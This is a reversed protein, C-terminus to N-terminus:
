PRDRRPSPGPHSRCENKGQRWLGPEHRDQRASRGRVARGGKGELRHNRGAAHRSPYQPGSVVIDPRNIRRGPSKWTTANGSWKAMWCCRSIALRPAATTVSATTSTGFSSKRSRKWGSVPSRTRRTRTLNPSTRIRRDLSQRGGKAAPKDSTALRSRRSGPAGGVAVPVGPCDRLPYM